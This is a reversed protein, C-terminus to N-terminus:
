EIVAYDLIYFGKDIKTIAWRLVNKGLHSEIYDNNLLKTIPIEIQKTVIKM